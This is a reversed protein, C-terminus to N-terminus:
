SWISGSANCQAAELVEISACKFSASMGYAPHITVIFSSTRRDASEETRISLELIANQQNFGEMQFDEVETFKLTALTHHSGPREIMVHLKIKLSPMSIDCDGSPPRIEKRSLQLEIVEADHFTPWCGYVNTLQQSGIIFSDINPM